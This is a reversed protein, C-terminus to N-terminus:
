DQIKSFDAFKYTLKKIRAMFALRNNRVKKDEVNVMVENFYRDLLKDLGSLHKLAVTYDQAEFALNVNKEVEIFPEYLEKEVNLEFLKSDVKGEMVELWQEEGDFSEKPADNLINTARKSATLVMKGNSTKLFKNLADAMKFIAFLDGTSKTIVAEVLYFEYGSDRMYFGLRSNIFEFVEFKVFDLLWLQLKNEHILRIVGIAARRLAYPDKSGTPKEDIKWFQELMDLKDALAVAVSVPEMPISDSPGQPKYHEACALVASKDEGSYEAYYRGMVGQLEPFEGVMASALDAKCIEAARKVAKKDAGVIPALKQALEVIRNVREGQSGIKAHFTVGDLKKRWFDFGDKKVTRLDNEWFFRADSLRANIVRENGRIIEKGGNKAEINSVFIFHNSLGKKDRLVFCKQNFRITLRIVEDPIDLFNVDFEGTLIVPWEVLNTVEDLLYDDEVLELKKSKACIDISKKIDRKRKDPDIHVHADLLKVFYDNRDDIQIENNVQTENNPIFRHGYTKDGSRIGDVKFKVVEAKSDDGFLCLISQLPRVWKLSGPQSSSEGWRMSKSWSFNRIIEPIIEGLIDSMPRGSRHTVAVYYDGKKDSRIEADSISALGSSRVFGDIAEAPADVRPGKREENVDPSSVPLGSIEVALRRPTWYERTYGFESVGVNRLNKYLSEILRIAADEQMRAPIEESFLELLLTTM